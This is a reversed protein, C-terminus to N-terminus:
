SIEHQHALAFKVLANSGGIGLKECINRRHTEVTLPSLRLEQAIERTTKFEAVLRLIRMEGDSLEKLSDARRPAQAQSAQWGRVLYSTMAPSVYHGGAAAARVGAVIDGASSDKLVYGRAGLSLAEDLLSDDAQATVFVIEVALGRKRIERAVDFGDLGPMGIDLVVVDPKCRVLLELAAQGDGAEGVIKLGPSSELSQRIGRRMLPHDDVIVLRIDPAM